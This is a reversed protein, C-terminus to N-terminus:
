QPDPDPGMQRTASPRDGRRVTRTRRPSVETARRAAVAMEPGNPLVIAVRENRSVKLGHLWGAALELQQYLTKYTLAPRGPAVIAVAEPNQEAQDKLLQYITQNRM